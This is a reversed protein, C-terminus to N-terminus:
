SADFFTPARVCPRDITADTMASSGWSRPLRVQGDPKGLRPPIM